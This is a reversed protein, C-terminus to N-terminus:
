GPERRPRNKSHNEFYIEPVVNHSRLASSRNPENSNTTVFRASRSIPAGMRFDIKAFLRLEHENRMKCDHRLRM